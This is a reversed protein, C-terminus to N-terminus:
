ADLSEIKFCLLFEEARHNENTLIERAWHKDKTKEKMELLNEAGWCSPKQYPFQFLPTPAEPSTHVLGRFHPGSISSGGAADSGVAM